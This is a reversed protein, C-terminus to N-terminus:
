PIESLKEIDSVKLSTKETEAPTSIAVINIDDPNYIGSKKLRSHLEYKNWATLSRKLDM